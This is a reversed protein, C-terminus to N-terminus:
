MDPVLFMPGAQAEITRRVAGSRVDITAIKGNEATSYLLPAADPSVAIGRAPEPLDIRRVLAHAVPDLEWVETGAAKHTWYTGVHMLVFLHGSARNWAFPQAGGPRWALDQVGTGAVPQGAAQQISWPAGIVPDQGLTTAYVKGSYSVFLARGTARDVLGQEFIPDNNADFFPKTHTVKAEAGGAYGVNTLSGDGCLSSFGGAKWPFVLACGPIDVTRAVSAHALDVVTVATAPSMDFVYGWRGDPSVDFDQKKYVALARPPLEIERLLKLTRADYEQLLDQRTGHDGRSWITDAVYFVKRDPSLVINGLSSAPVTGLIRGADGDYITYATHATAPLFWHPAVPPLTAVDNQEAQLVPTDAHATAASVMLMASFAARWATKTSWGVM